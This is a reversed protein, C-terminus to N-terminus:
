RGCWGGALRVVDRGVLRLDFSDELLESGCAVFFLAEGLGEGIREPPEFANGRELGSDVGDAAALEGGLKRIFLVFRDALGHDFRLNKQRVPTVQVVERDLFRAQAPM